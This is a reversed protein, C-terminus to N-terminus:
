IATNKLMFLGLAPDADFLLQPQDLNYWHVDPVDYSMLYSM